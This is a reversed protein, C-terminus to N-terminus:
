HARHFKLTKIEKLIRILLDFKNKDITIEDSSTSFDSRNAYKTLELVPHCADHDTIVISLSSTEGIKTPFLLEFGQAFAPEEVFGSDASFYIYKVELCETQCQEIKSDQQSELFKILKPISAPKKIQAKFSENNKSDIAFYDSSM